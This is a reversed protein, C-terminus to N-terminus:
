ISPWPRTTFILGSPRESLLTLVADPTPPSRRYSSAVFKKVTAFPAVTEDPCTGVVTAVALEVGGADAAVVGDEGIAELETGGVAEAVGDGVGLGFAVLVQHLGVRDGALFRLREDGLGCGCGRRHAGREAPRDPPAAPRLGAAPDPRAAARLSLRAPARTGVAIAPASRQARATASVRACAMVDALASIPVSTPAAARAAAKVSTAVPAIAVARAFRFKEFRSLGVLEGNFHIRRRQDELSAM